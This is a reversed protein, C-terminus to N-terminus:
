ASALATGPADALRALGFFAQATATTARALAEPAEGRARAVAALVEPLYEPANRRSAPKPKLTRPLLYPGDTELMLRGPPVHRVVEELHRGRREDCIWGTIGICLGMALYEEAEARGGTFCHAVARPRDAGAAKLIAVFDAHADRQHLFLPKGTRAALAVQAEFARRQDARPALDRFYDLGCEGVAVVQPHRTLAELQALGEPGLEAAHHPHVGATASLFDPDTAALRAAAPSSALSSGTVVLHVLGARRARALVEARDADYSEHTLNIGIDVLPGPATM